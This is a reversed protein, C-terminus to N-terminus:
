RVCFSCYDGPWVARLDGKIDNNDFAVEWENVADGNTCHGDDDCGFCEDNYCDM